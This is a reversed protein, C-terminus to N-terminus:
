ATAMSPADASGSLAAKYYLDIAHQLEKPGGLGYQELYGLMHQAGAVGEEALPEVIARAGAYDKDVMLRYAEEVRANEAHAVGSLAAASLAFLLAITVRKPSIM